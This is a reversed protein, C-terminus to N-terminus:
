LRRHLDELRDAFTCTIMHECSVTGSWLVSCIGALMTGGELFVQSVIGRGAFVGAGSGYFM